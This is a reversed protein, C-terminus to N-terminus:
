PESRALEAARKFADIVEAKTRGEIDNWEVVSRLRRPGFSKGCYKRAGVAIRLYKAAPLKPFKPACSFDDFNPDYAKALAGLACYCEGTSFAGQCWGKEILARAEDLKQVIQESM